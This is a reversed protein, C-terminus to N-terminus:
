ECSIHTYGEVKSEMADSVVWMESGYLIIVQVMTRYFIASVMPEAKERRLLTVMGGWVSRARMINRQM